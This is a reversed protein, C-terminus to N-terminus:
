VSNWTSLMTAVDLSTSGDMWEINIRELDPFRDDEKKTRLLLGIQRELRNTEPDGHRPQEVVDLTLQVLHPPLTDSLLPEPASPSLKTLSHPSATSYETQGTTVLKGFLLTLDTTLEELMHFPQLSGMCVPPLSRTLITLSKLTNTCRYRLAELIGGPNFTEFAGGSLPFEDPWYHFSELSTCRALFRCLVSSYISCNSLTLHTIAVTLSLPYFKARPQELYSCAGTSANHVSLTKMSPLTGFDPLMSPFEVDGPLEVDYAELHLSELRTLCQIPDDCSIRDIFLSLHVFFKNVLRVHELNPLLTLLLVLIHEEDEKKMNCLRWELTSPFIYKSAKVAKCFMESDEITYELSSASEDFETEWGEVDMNLVYDAIRPQNLITKLMRM